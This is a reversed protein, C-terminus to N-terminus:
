AEQLMLQEQYDRVKLVKALSWYEVSSSEEGM